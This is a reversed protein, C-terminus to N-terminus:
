AFGLLLIRHDYHWRRVLNSGCLHLCSRRGVHHHYYQIESSVSVSSPRDISACFSVRLFSAIRRSSSDRASSVLFFGLEQLGEGKTERAGGEKDRDNGQDDDATSAQVRTHM